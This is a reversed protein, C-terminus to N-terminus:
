PRVPDGRDTGLLEAIWDAELHAAGPDFANKLERRAEILLKSAERIEGERALLAAKGILFTHRGVMGEGRAEELLARARTPDRDRAALFYAGQALLPPRLAAPVVDRQALAAELHARAAVEDGQDLAHSFAMQRAVVGRLSGGDLALAQAVQGADWDRPRRGDMSDAMVAFLAAEGEAEPGGRLLRLIHSGDTDFGSTRGPILTIGGIAVSGVGLAILLGPLRDMFTGPDGGPMPVVWATALVIAGFALSALPGGAAMRLMGARLSGDGRPVCAAMGGWLALARNLGLRWRADRHEVRLPGVVLLIPRFGALKGGLLHGVEHVLLILFGGAVLAATFIGAQWPDAWDGRGEMGALDLAGRVLLWAAVLGALWMGTRAVRDRGENRIGNSV